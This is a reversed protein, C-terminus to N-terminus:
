LPRYLPSRLPLLVAGERRHDRRHDHIHYFKAPTSDMTSNPQTRAMVLWRRSRPFNQVVGEGLAHLAAMNYQSKMHGQEAAKRYWYAARALDREVGEGRDYMVGLKYRAKVHEQKAAVRLWEIAMQLDQEVGGLGMIYSLALNYQAKAHGQEAARRYWENAVELNQEIGGRGETYLIGLNYQAKVHGQEAAMRYWNAATVFDQGIGGKVENYLLALEYQAEAHGQQAAMCYWLAAEAFDPSVGQGVSYMVGLSYKASAIGGEAAMGFWYAAKDFDSYSDENASITKRNTDHQAKPAVAGHAYIVGLNYQAKAHGRDAAKRYWIAAQVLDQSVGQGLTYMVGLNYQAKAHGRDAAKRYWIAAQVLDQSVGDGRDYLVGLSYQAKAHGQDAAKRYWPAAGGPDPFSDLPRIPRSETVEYAALGYGRDYIVGLNYQAKVHGQGAAKRYWRATEAADRWETFVGALGEEFKQDRPPLDKGWGRDLNGHSYMPVGLWYTFLAKLDQQNIVVNPILQTKSGDEIEFTCPPFDAIGIGLERTDQFHREAWGQDVLIGLYYQADADGQKALPLWEEYAVAYDALDYATMGSEFDAAVMLPLSFITFLTLLRSATKMASKREM